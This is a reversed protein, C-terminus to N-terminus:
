QNPNDNVILDNLEFEKLMQYTKNAFWEQVYCQPEDCKMKVWGRNKFILNTIHGVEHTIISNSTPVHKWLNIVLVYTDWGEYEGNFALASTYNDLIDTANFKKDLWKFDDTCVVIFVGKL